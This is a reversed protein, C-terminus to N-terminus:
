TQQDMDEKWTWFMDLNLCYAHKLHYSNTSLSFLFHNKMPFNKQKKENYLHVNFFINSTVMQLAPNLDSLTNEIGM